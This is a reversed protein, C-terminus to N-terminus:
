GGPGAPNERLGRVLRCVHGRLLAVETGGVAQLWYRGEFGLGLLLCLLELLHLASDPQRLCREIVRASTEGGQPEDLFARQLVPGSWGGRAGLPSAAVSEDLAACLLHRAALVHARDLGCALATSVFCRLGVRLRRFLNGSGGVGPLGDGGRPDLGEAGPTKLCVLEALLHSACNVLPNLGLAFDGPSSRRSPLMPPRFAGGADGAEGADGTKTPPVKRREPFATDGDEIRM